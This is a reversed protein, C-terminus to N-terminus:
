AAKARQNYGHKRLWQRRNEKKLPGTFNPMDSPFASEPSPPPVFGSPTAIPQAAPQNPVQELQLLAIMRRTRVLETLIKGALDARRYLRAEATALQSFLRANAQFGAAEALSTITDAEADFQAEFMKEVIARQQETTLLTLATERAVVRRMRWRCAVIEQVLSLEQDTEAHLDRATQASLLEFLAADEGPLLVEASFLGHKVANMSARAKGEPTRPGTSHEANARNIQARTRSATETQPAAAPTSPDTLETLPSPAPASM